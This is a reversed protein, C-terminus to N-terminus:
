FAIQQFCLELITECVNKNIFQPTPPSQGPLCEGVGVGQTINMLTCTFQILVYLLCTHELFTEVLFHFFFFLLFLHGPSAGGGGM